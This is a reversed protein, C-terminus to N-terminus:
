ESEQTPATESTMTIEGTRAESQPTGDYIMTGATGDLLKEADALRGIAAVRRTGRVLRCAAAVKPGMSGSPFQMTELESASIRDISRASPKGYDLEVAPVDTLLLLADAELNQALLATTSDKDM